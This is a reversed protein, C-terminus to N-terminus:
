CESGELVTDPYAAEISVSIKKSNGLYLDVYESIVGVIEMCVHTTIERRQEVGVSYEYTEIGENIMQAKLANIKDRTEPDPISNIMLSTFMAIRYDNQDKTDCILAAFTSYYRLFLGALGKSDKIPLDLGIINSNDNDFEM